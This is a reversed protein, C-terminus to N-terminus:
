LPAAHFAFTQSIVILFRDCSTKKQLLKLFRVDFIHFCECCIVRTFNHALKESTENSPRSVSTNSPCCCICAQAPLRGRDTARVVRKGLLMPVSSSLFDFHHDLQKDQPESKQPPYPTRLKHLSYPQLHEPGPSFHIPPPFTLLCLTRSRYPFQRLHRSCSPPHNSSQELRRRNM